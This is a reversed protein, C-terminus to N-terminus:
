IKMSVVCDWGIGIGIVMGIVIGNMTEVYESIHLLMPGSKAGVDIGVVGVGVWVCVCRM